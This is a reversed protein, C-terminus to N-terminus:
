SRTKSMPLVGAGVWDDQGPIPGDLQVAAREGRRLSEIVRNPDWGGGM